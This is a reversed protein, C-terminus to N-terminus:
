KVARWGIPIGGLTLPLHKLLERAERLNCDGSTPMPISLIVTIKAAHRRRPKTTTTTTNM